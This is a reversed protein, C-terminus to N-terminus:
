GSGIEKLCSEIALAAATQTDPLVHSYVDLTVATSAHGLREAVVKPHVGHKLLLTAHTHRLDHARIAPVGAVQALDRLRHYVDARRLPTGRRTCFVLEYDR